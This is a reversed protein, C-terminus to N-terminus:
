LAGLQRLQQRSQAIQQKTLGYQKLFADAEAPSRMFGYEYAEIQNPISRFAQERQAAVQPNPASGVVKAYGQLALENGLSQTIINKAAQADVHTNPAGSEYLSRAADTNGVSGARAAEYRALNKVLENANTVGSTDMGISAALNRLSTFNSFAGGTWTGQDLIARARTLADVAQPSTNAAENGAQLRGALAATNAQLLQTQGPAPNWWNANAGGQGGQATGPPGIPRPNTGAGGGVQGLAGTGPQTVIQPALTTPISHGAPTFAGTYNSTQGPVIAGGTSITSPTALAPGGMHSAVAAAWQRVAQQGQATPMMGTNPMRSLTRDLMSQFAPDNSLERAEGITEVPDAGQAISQFYKALTGQQANTLKLLAERNAVDGNFNSTMQGIYAQGYTPAVAMAGLQFKSVNPSGDPNLYSPDQAANKTFTALAQLEQQQQQAMGAGAQVTQQQYAGTQLNQQQQRIGLISSLPALTNNLTQGFPAPPNVGTAVPTTALDAM